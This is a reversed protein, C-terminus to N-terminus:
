KYKSIGLARKGEYKGVLVGYTNQTNIKGGGGGGYVGCVEPMEDDKM